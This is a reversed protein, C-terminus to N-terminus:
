CGVMVIPESRLAAGCVYWSLLLCCCRNAATTLLCLAGAYRWEKCGRGACCLAIFLEAWRLVACRTVCCGRVKSYGFDCLKLRLSGEQELLTNELKIDRHYVAQPLYGVSRLPQTTHVCCLLTRCSSTV